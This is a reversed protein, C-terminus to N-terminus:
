RSDPDESDSGGSLPISFLTFGGSVKARRGDSSITTGCGALLLCATILIARRRREM